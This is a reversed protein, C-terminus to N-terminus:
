KKTKWTAQQVIEVKAEKDLNLTSVPHIKNNQEEEGALICWQLKKSLRDTEDGLTL